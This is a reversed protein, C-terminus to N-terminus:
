FIASFGLTMEPYLPRSIVDLEKRYAAQVVLAVHREWFYRMGVGADVMAMHRNQPRIELGTGCGFFPTFSGGPVPLNYRYFAGIRTIRDTQEEEQVELVERRLSTSGFGALKRARLLNGAYSVGPSRGTDDFAETDDPRHISFVGGFQHTPTLFYGASLSVTAPDFLANGTQGVGQVEIRGQRLRNGASRPRDPVVAAIPPRPAAPSIGQHGAPEFAGTSYGANPRIMM